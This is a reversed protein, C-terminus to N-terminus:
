TNVPASQDRTNEIVILEQSERVTFPEVEGRIDADHKLYLMETVGCECSDTSTAHDPEAVIDYVGGHNVTMM